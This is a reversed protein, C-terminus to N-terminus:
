SRGGGNKHIKLLIEVSNKHKSTKSIKILLPQWDEKSEYVM